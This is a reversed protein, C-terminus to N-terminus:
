GPAKTLPQMWLEREPATERKIASDKMELVAGVERPNYSSILGLNPNFARDCCTKEIVQLKHTLPINLLFNAMRPM